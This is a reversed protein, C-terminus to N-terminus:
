HITDSKATSFTNDLEELDEMESTTVSQNGYYKIVSEVYASEMESSVQSTAVIASKYFSVSDTFFLFDWKILALNFGTDRPILAARVPFKLIISNPTISIVEGVVNDGTVLKIIQIDM